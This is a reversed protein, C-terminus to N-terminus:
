VDTRTDLETVLRPIVARLLCSRPGTAGVTEARPVLEQGWSLPVALQLM